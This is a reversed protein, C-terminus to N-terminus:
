QKAHGLATEPRQIRKGDFWYVDSAPLAQPLEDFLKHLRSKILRLKRRQAGTGGPRRADDDKGNRQCHQHSAPWARAPQSINGVNSRRAIQGRDGQGVADHEDGGIEGDSRKDPGESIRGHRSKLVETFKRRTRVRVPRPPDSVQRINMNYTFAIAKPDFAASRTRASILAQVPQERQQIADVRIIGDVRNEDGAIHRIRATGRLPRFQQVGQRGIGPKSLPDQDQGPIMVEIDDVAGIRSPEIKRCTRVSFQPSEPEQRRSIREMPFANTQDILGSSAQSATKGFCELRM